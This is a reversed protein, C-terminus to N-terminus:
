AALLVVPQGVPIVSLLLGDAIEIGVADWGAVWVPDALCGYGDALAFIEDIPLASTITMAAPPLAANEPVFLAIGGSAADSVAIWSQNAPGALVLGEPAWLAAVLEAIHRPDRVAASVHPIMGRAKMLRHLRDVAGGDFPLRLDRRSRRERVSARFSRFDFRENDTEQKARRVQRYPHCGSLGSLSSLFDVISCFLEAFRCFPHHM